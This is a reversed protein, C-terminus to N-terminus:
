FEINFHKKLYDQPGYVRGEECMNTESCEWAHSVQDMAVVRYSEVVEIPNKDPHNQLHEIIQDIVFKEM